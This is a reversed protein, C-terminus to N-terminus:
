SAASFCYLHKCHVAHIQLSARQDMAQIDMDESSRELRTGHLRESAAARPLLSQRTVAPLSSSVALGRCVGTANELLWAAGTVEM